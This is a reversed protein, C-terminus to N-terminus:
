RGAIADLLWAVRDGFGQPFKLRPLRRRRPPPDRGGSAAGAHHTHLSDDRVFLDRGEVLEVGMQQALFAHEFCASNYAGPM